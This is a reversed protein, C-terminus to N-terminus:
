HHFNNLKHGGKLKTSRFNIQWPLALTTQLLEHGVNGKILLLGTLLHIKIIHDFINKLKLKDIKKLFYPVHLIHLKAQSCARENWVTALCLINNINKLAHITKGPQFSM